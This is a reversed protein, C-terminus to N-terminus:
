IYRKLEISAIQKDDLIKNAEVKYNNAEKYMSYDSIIKYKKKRKNLSKEILFKKYIDEYGFINKVQELLLFFLVMPQFYYINSLAFIIFFILSIILSMKMAKKYTLIKQFFAKIIMYGDLPYVPLLNLLCMLYNYRFLYNYNVKNIINNNKMVSFVVINVLASFPGAIYILLQKNSSLSEIEKVTLSAGFPLIQFKEVKVKLAFCMLLHFLEHIFAVIFYLMIMKFQGFLASLVFLLITTTKIEFVDIIQLLKKM